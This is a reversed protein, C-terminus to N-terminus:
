NTKNKKKRQERVVKCKRVVIDSYSFLQLYRLIFIQKDIFLMLFM